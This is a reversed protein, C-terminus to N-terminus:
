NSKLTASWIVLTKANGGVGKKRHLTAERFTETEYGKKNKLCSAFIHLILVDISAEEVFPFTRCNIFTEKLTSPVQM